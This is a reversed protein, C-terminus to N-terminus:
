VVIRHIILFFSAICVLSLTLDCRKLVYFIVFYAFIEGSVFNSTGPNLIPNQM